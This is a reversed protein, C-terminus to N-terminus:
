DRKKNYASYYFRHNCLNFSVYLARPSSMTWYIWSYFFLLIQSSLWLVIVFGSSVTNYFACSTRCIWVSLPTQPHALLLFLWMLTMNQHILLILLLLIPTSCFLIHSIWTHSWTHNHINFSLPLSYTLNKCISLLAFVFSPFVPNLLCWDM